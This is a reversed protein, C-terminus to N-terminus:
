GIGLKWLPEVINESNYKIFGYRSRARGRLGPSQRRYTSV